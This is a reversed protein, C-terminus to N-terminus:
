MARSNVPLPNGGSPGNRITDAAWRFFFYAVVLVIAPVGLIWGIVYKGMVLELQTNHPCTLDNRRNGAWSSAVVRRLFLAWQPPWTEEACSALEGPQDHKNSGLQESRLSVASTPQLCRM